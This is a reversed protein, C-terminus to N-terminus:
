KITSVRFLGRKEKQMIIALDFLSMLGKISRGDVPIGSNAQAIYLEVTDRLHHLLHSMELDVM